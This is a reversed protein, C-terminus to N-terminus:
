GEPGGIAQEEQILEQILWKGSANSFHVIYDKALIKQNKTRNDQVKIDWSVKAIITDANKQQINHLNFQLDLYDYKQWTRLIKEKKDRLDPFTPSYAQFFLNIDKKLQAERIQRLVGLLAEREPMPALTALKQKPSAPSQTSTKLHAPINGRAESKSITETSTSSTKGLVFFYAIVLGIVVAWIIFLQRWML